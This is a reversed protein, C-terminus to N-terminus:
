TIGRKCILLLLSLKRKGHFLMQDVFSSSQLVTDILIKICFIRLESYLEGVYIDNKYM